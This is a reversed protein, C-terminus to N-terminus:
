KKMAGAKSRLHDLALKVEAPSARASTKKLLEQADAEIAKADSEQKTGAAARVLDHASSVVMQVASVIEQEATPLGEDDGSQRDSGNSLRVTASQVNGKAEEAAFEFDAIAEPIGPNPVVVPGGVCGVLLCSMVTVILCVRM